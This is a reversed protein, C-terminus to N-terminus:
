LAGGTREIAEACLIISDELVEASVRDGSALAIVRLKAYHIARTAYANRRDAPTMDPETPHHPLILANFLTM